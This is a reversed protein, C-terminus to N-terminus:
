PPLPTGEAKTLATYQAAITALIPGPVGDGVTRGDILVVPTLEGMTGTTFVEDASHAESLSVRREFCPIGLKYCISMVAARTIGPLCSSAEPTSVTGKKVIFINTANTESLFGDLDLMIADEAGANNAQIKALINNLLNNHHIKSDLCSPPNRRITSSILKVGKNNDYTAVDGVPKWEPVVLLNCGFVNFVPNMSSTIKAGRTLTLRVHCGDRMGNAQLTKFIADQIFQRPPVAAFALAKASDFLRDLHEELKFVRGDYVRLGEWVADGGQVASDFVSVRALDRPVLRDGVWVLVNANRSDALPARSRTPFILPHTSSSPAQLPDCGIANRRLLDYFPLTQRYLEIQRPTLPAKSYSRSSLVEQSFGTSKHVSDYWYKAWMGDCAKPGVPWSLQESYFPIELQRCLERLTEEPHAKLLSSDICIPPPAGSDAAIDCVESYLQVLQPFCMAELTCGEQHVHNVAGWCEIMQLPDRFLFVHRVTVGPSPTLGLILDRDLKLVQRGIHKAFVVRVTTDSGDKGQGKGSNGDFAAASMLHRMVADGDTESSALFLDRYPRTKNTKSLWSAYLPEDYCLTDPRQAFSYMTATSLTRPGCWCNILIKTPGGSSLLLKVKEKSEM